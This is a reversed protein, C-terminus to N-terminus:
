HVVALYNLARAALEPRGIERYKEEADKLQVIAEQYSSQQTLAAGLWTLGEAEAMGDSGSARLANLADAAAREAAVYEAAHFARAAEALLESIETVAGRQETGEAM